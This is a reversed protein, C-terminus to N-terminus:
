EENGRHMGRRMDRMERREQMMRDREDPGSERQGFERRPGSFGRDRYGGGSHYGGGGRYGGGGGRYGGRDHYGRDNRYGERDGHYGEEHRTEKYSVDDDKFNDKSVPIGKMKEDLFKSVVDTLGEQHSSKNIFQLAEVAVLENQPEGQVWVIGNQGVIIRCGTKEKIMSIMSGERGIIRPVKSSGVRLIRGSGLKKLGPGRMTLDIKGRTVNIVRGVVMDGFSYIQSLDAGREVFDTADKVSLMASSPCDIDIYWNSFTMDVIKGIVVDGKKPAYKGRLSIVKVLRGDVNVIGIQNAVIKEGERFAGGVPLYDMGDALEEGPVVIEKEKVSLTGM